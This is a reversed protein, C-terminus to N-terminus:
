MMTGYKPHGLLAAHRSEPQQKLQQQRTITSHWLMPEAIIVPGLLNM